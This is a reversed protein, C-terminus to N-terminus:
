ESLLEARVVSGTVTGCPRFILSNELVYFPNSKQKPKNPYCRNISEAYVKDFDQNPNTYVQHEFFATLFDALVRERSANKIEKPLALNEFKFKFKFAKKEHWYRSKSLPAIKKEALKLFYIAHGLEHIFTLVHYISPKIPTEIIVKKNKWDYRASPNFGIKKEIKIKSIVKKVEPLKKKALKYVDEPITFKPPNILYLSDPINFESWYWKPLKNPLPLNKNVEEIVKDANKFFFGLKEEPTGDNKLVYELHSPFGEDKALRSREIVIKKFIPKLASIVDKFKKYAEKREKLKKKPHFIEIRIRDILDWDAIGYYREILRAAKKRKPSLANVKIKGM